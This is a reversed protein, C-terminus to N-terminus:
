RRYTFLLLMGHSNGAEIVGDEVDAVEVPGDLEVALGEAERFHRPHRAESGEEAGLAAIVVVVQAEERDARLCGGRRPAGRPEVVEGPLDFVDLVEPVDGGGERVKICEGTRRVVPRRLREVALVRVAVLELHHPEEGALRPAAELLVGNDEWQVEVTLDPLPARLSLSARLEDLPSAVAEASHRRVSSIEHEVCKRVSELARELAEAVLSADALGFEVLREALHPDRQELRVDVELHDAVEDGAHTFARQALLDQLRDGGGLLDDADDVVLQDLRQALLVRREEPRLGPRELDHHDAGLTATLGGEGPAEGELELVLPHLGEEDGGVELADGRALLQLDERAADLDVAVDLLRFCRSALDSRPAQLM